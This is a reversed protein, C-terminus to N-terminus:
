VSPIPMYLCVKFLFSLEKGQQNSWMKLFVGIFASPPVCWTLAHVISLATSAKHRPQQPQKGPRLVPMQDGSLRVEFSESPVQINNFTKFFTCRSNFCSTKRETTRPDVRRPGPSSPGTQTSQSNKAPQWVFSKKFKISCFLRFLLFNTRHVPSGTHRTSCQQTRSTAAGTQKANKFRNAQWKPAKVGEQKTQRQSNHTTDCHSAMPNSAKEKLNTLSPPLCYWCLCHVYVAISLTIIKKQIGWINMKWNTPQATKHGSPLITHQNGGPHVKHSSSTPFHSCCPLCINKANVKWKQVWKQQKYWLLYSHHSPPLTKM